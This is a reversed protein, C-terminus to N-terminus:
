CQDREASGVVAILYRNNFNCTGHDDMVKQPTLSAWPNSHLDLGKSKMPMGGHDILLQRVGLAEAHVWATVVLPWKALIRGSSDGIAAAHATRSFENPHLLADITPFWSEYFIMGSNLAFVVDPPDNSPRLLEAAMEHYFGRHPVLRVIPLVGEKDATVSPMRQVSVRRFSSVKEILANCRAM